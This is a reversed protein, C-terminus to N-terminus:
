FVFMKEYGEPKNLFSTHQYAGGTYDDSFGQRPACKRELVFVNGSLEIFDLASHPPNLKNQAITVNYTKSAVSM